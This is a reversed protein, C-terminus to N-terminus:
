SICEYNNVENIKMSNDYSYEGFYKEEAEKRIKVADDFNTFCGLHIHKKNLHIQAIWKNKSNSWYVGTVGSKNNNQLSKNMSNQQNTCTRLQSKRNDHNVHKIHDVYQSDPFLLKHMGITSKNNLTHTVVYGRDDIFWCYDKIKEYDELDFYFPEKKSTYGIGYEGSLDYTNYKKLIKSAVEKQICGCSQTSNRKRTLSYGRVVIENGCDCKCLWQSQCKGQPTTYDGVQRLVILKGFKQGTLDQRVKVM